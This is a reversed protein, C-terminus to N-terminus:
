LMTPVAMAAASSVTSEPLGIKSAISGISNGFLSNVQGGTLTASSNGLISGLGMNRIKGIFGARGGASSTMTTMLYGVLQSAKDAIGFRSAVDSILNSLWGSM